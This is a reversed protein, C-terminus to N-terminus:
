RGRSWSRRARRWWDVPLEDDAFDVYAEDVLLPCPLREALELIRERRFADHGLPQQSQAPVGAALRRRGAAFSTPWRGTPARLPDGRQRRGSDPGPDQLPHLQPVAAAAIARPRRFGATVITLIEDSGNGCLIWDPDVGLVEAARRRFAAALPDPYRGCDANSRRRRDGAGGGALRSLSERQHQAQHVQRAQPQEGPVYGAMADIEPRFYSM